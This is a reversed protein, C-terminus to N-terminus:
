VWPPSCAVMRAVLDARLPLLRGTGQARVAAWSVTTRRAIASACARARKPPIQIASLKSGPWVTKGCRGSRLRSTQSTTSSGTAHGRRSRAALFCKRDEDFHLPVHRSQQRHIDSKRTIDLPLTASYVSRDPLIRHTAATPDAPQIQFSVTLAVQDAVPTLLSGDEDVLDFRIAVPLLLQLPGVEDVSLEALVERDLSQGVIGHADPVTILDAARQELDSLGANGAIADANPHVLGSHRCQQCGASPRPEIEADQLFAAHAGAVFDHLHSLRLLSHRDCLDVREQIRGIM